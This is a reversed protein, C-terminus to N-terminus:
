ELTVSDATGFLETLDQDLKETVIQRGYYNGKAPDKLPTDEKDLFCQTIMWGDRDPHKLLLGKAVRPDRPRHTSFYQMVERYTLEALPSPRGSFLSTTAQIGVAITDRVAGRLRQYQRELADLLIPENDWDRTQDLRMHDKDKDKDKDHM